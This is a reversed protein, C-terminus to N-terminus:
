GWRKLTGTKPRYDGVDSDCLVVFKWVMLSLVEDFSSAWTTMAYKGTDGLSLRGTLTACYSDTEADYSLSVKLGSGLVDDLLQWALTPDDSAWAQYRRKHEENLSINIYGVWADTELSKRPQLLSPQKDSAVTSSSKKARPM